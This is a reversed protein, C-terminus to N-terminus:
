ELNDLWLYKFWSFPKRTELYESYELSDNLYAEREFSINVYAYSGYFPLRILWELVYWIYFPIVLMERQQRIHIMEHRVLRENARSWVIIFPWLSMGSVNWLNCWKEAIGGKLVYGNKIM